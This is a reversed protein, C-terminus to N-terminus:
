GHSVPSAQPSLGTLYVSSPLGYFRSSPPTISHNPTETLNSVLFYSAFLLVLYVSRLGISLFRSVQLNGVLNGHKGVALLLGVEGNYIYVPSTPHACPHGPEQIVGLRM